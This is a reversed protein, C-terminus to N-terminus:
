HSEEPVMGMDQFTGGRRPILWFNRAVKGEALSLAHVSNITEADEASLSGVEYQCVLTVPFRFKALNLSVEVQMFSRFMEPREKLWSMDLVVILSAQGAERQAEITKRLRELTDAPDASGDLYVVGKAPLCSLTKSDNGLRKRVGSILKESDSFLVVKERDNRCSVLDAIATEKQTPSACLQVLHDRRRVSSTWKPL